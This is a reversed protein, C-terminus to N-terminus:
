KESLELDKLLCEEPKSIKELPVPTVFGLGQAALAFFIGIVVFGMVMAPLHVIELVSTAAIYTFQALIAGFLAYIVARWDLYILFGGLAMATLVSNFLLEGNALRAEPFGLWMDIGVVLLGGALGMLGMIRSNVLVALLILGGSVPNGHMFAQGFASLVGFVATKWTYPLAAAAATDAAEKAAPMHNVVDSHIFGGVVLWVLTLIPLALSSLNLKSFLLIFAMIVPVVLISTMTLLLLLEGPTHPINMMIFTGTLVGAFGGAFGFMGIDILQKPAKFLIAVLQALISGFLFWLAAQWSSYGIAILILVGSIWNGSLICQGVGMLASKMFQLIPNLQTTANESM